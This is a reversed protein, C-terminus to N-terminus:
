IAHSKSGRDEMYIIYVCNTTRNHPHLPTRPATARVFCCCGNFHHGNFVALITEPDNGRAVGTTNDIRYGMGSGSEFRMGYAPHGSLTLKESKANVAVDRLAGKQCGQGRSGCLALDLHNGYKSQDFVRTIVCGSAGCFADQAAGDAIATGVLVSVNTSVSDNRLVTYLPGTYSGYLARVTSHAAVCPTHEPAADFIDCPGEAAAVQLTPSLALPLAAALMAAGALGM